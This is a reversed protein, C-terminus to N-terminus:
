LKGVMGEHSVVLTTLGKGALSVTVQKASSEPVSDGDLDVNVVQWQLTYAQGGVTVSQTGDVLRDFKKSLLWEMRSRLESDILFQEAQVDLTQLGTFYLAAVTSSALALIVISLLAEVLTFGAAGSAETRRLIERSM